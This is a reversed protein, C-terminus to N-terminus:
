DYLFLDSGLAPERGEIRYVEKMAFRGYCEPLLCPMTNFFDDGQPHLSIKPPLTANYKMSFSDVVWDVCQGPTIGAGAIDHHQLLLVRNGTM